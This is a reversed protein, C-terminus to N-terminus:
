FEGHRFQEQTYTGDAENEQVASRLIDAVTRMANMHAELKRANVQLKGKMAKMQTAFGQPFEGPDVDRCLVTLEYLCRSKHVNSAKIDFKMDTGIRQNENDIIMELRGLVTRLRIDKLPEDFTAMTM